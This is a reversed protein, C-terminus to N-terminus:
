KGCVKRRKTTFVLCVTSVAMIGFWFIMNSDNGTKPNDPEKPIRENAIEITIVEGNENISIEFVEDTRIYGNPASIEKIEYEGYPIDSFLAIGNEDTMQEAILNGDLDYLGFIAGALPLGTKADTKIIRIDGRILLNDITMETLEDTAISVTQENSLIYGTTLDSAIEKVTYEGIPLGEIFIEGNEDTFFEGYFEVGAIGTGTVTFKVGKIPTEKGEFTKIIKLDGRLLENLIETDTQGDATVTVTIEPALDYGATWESELERITYDGVPLGEIFIVGDTDTYFVEDFVLGATSTGFVQFPVNAIPNNGEFSKVIKLNGRQLKNDIELTKLRNTRIVATQTASLWFGETLEIDLETVTYHGIPLGTISIEGNEDTYHIESYEMGAISTGEVKFPVGEIPIDRSEFTKVIKLDGRKLINHIEMEAIKEHAIFTTQPKSLFYGATLESNIEQVRYFGIPLGEIFIEGNENTVFEGKFPIGTISIGTVTFPVGEIPYDKGEFTKIIRLDGRKLKNEIAMETLEETAIVATQEDSLIYGITLRSDLEKVTYNGIPLGEIFIKGNKDTYHIQSYEMGAISTGEITFPVGKIPYVREEFTKIIKLDGRMLINNITIETIEKHAVGVTEEESLYYGATLESELEKVTYNGVLLNELTIEGNEDTKANITVTTGVATEGTITFPVDAIPYVKGEFTKIVKLSGRMLENYIAEGNNVKIDVVVGGGKNYDFTIEYETDILVYGVATNVEKIIYNGFPLDTKIIGNGDKDVGFVELLAGAPIVVMGDIAKIDNKAYVGFLVEAYPNFDDAANEPMEMVKDLTVSAKQRQNYIAVRKELYDGMYIADLGLMVPIPKGDSVFGYPITKEVLEYRGFRLMKSTAKGNADTTITDVVTGKAIVLRGYVDYIDESAVIDFVAGPLGRVEYVPIYVGSSEVSGVLMEGTKEIFIQGFKLENPLAIGGNNVSVKSTVTDQGAYAATIPYKTNNLQYFQNTQLEQVYYKAFPLEGFVIGKGNNDVQILAILTGKAIVVSGDVGRIDEDSYLGFVVDKFANFGEPANVPKEMLKQLEIEVNQRVNTIGIQTSVVAIEQGEYVLHAPYPTKNLVFGEAAKTEIVTYSGLYLQKTEAYGNANTTITDVVTGKAYRLTGDHTYIDEAAVVNFVAGRLGTLSFIPTNQEGFETSTKVSGTLMNGQKEIKIIGKQPNNAMRVEHVFPDIQTSHITFKVPTRNIVYGYPANVEHLEYDGSKLTEPMVLTGDPATEFVDITTPVPYNFSQSVWQGTSLDNVKFSTGAAPITKGTESDVKIIKVLSRFHPDNLIYRYIRGEQSIFVDFLDVLRMDGPASVEKVTYVGYPLLKTIAYGNENTTLIDREIPLANNYSGAKKLHIEFIAGELPAEVQNNPPDVNPDPDDTHKTIAIQGEIVKNSLNGYKKSVEVNQGQYDITIPYSGTDLTYGVPPVKEKYYYNGLPLEKTTASSTNGCYITDVLQNNRYIFTGNLQRIDQAAYVEFVAGNLTSDGQARTGFTKDLKTITIIGVQPNEPVAVDTYTITVTQGAYTLVPRYTTTNLIYGYPATRENVNYAGLPLEKTQAYGSANTTIIDVLSGSSNRVDFVAGALSYDGMSPIANHKHIRIIGTQPREPVGVATYVVTVEQGGYSLTANHTDLNLVYGYPAVTELITYNGLILDKSQAKGAADTTLTDILAGNKDRIEFKAGALSYDGMNPITNSKQLNIRGVQPYEPVTVDTYAVPVSQGAYTLVAPFSATNRVYGYPATKETITYAGLPLEKTNADGNKDTTITDVLTGGANRIEFVAGSLDYNGMSPNANTKHVRIIGPQPPESVTVSSFTRLEEQGAYTLTVPFNNTNLLYGNPATRERVTYTGLKLDKSQAKGAADTTITDVVTTGSLIDFVAGALSYNGMAPNGNIKEINIRGVQPTEAITVDPAYVVDANGHAGSIPATHTNKDVVFGYPAITEKVSYVGLPLIKTQARGNSGTTITDVLTGGADRVEFVAGALSYGGMTPNADTKRVTIVGRKKINDFSVSATQGAIVTVNKPNPTPEVFDSSLNIEKVSYVGPVLNPIDIKGTSTSVYTGILTNSSNRVEFQFGAVAGANHQTTKIIALSGNNVRVRVFGNIPDTIEQGVTVLGQVSGKYQIVNNCWFTIASRKAGTKSAQIDVTGTPPNNMSITLNSGSRSFSVGTTTSSFTYDALVGNTDTLVVSYNTGNWALDNTIAATLSKRLFSPIKGHNIVSTVIRNYNSFISTRLPHDSRISDTVKDLSSAPTAYNFDPDREGVIVEWVLLQTAILEAMVTNNLSTSVTGTYGYQFIRGLLAQIEDAVLIGNNYSSLFNAPLIEPATDGTSLDVGPQVCYAVASNSRVGYVCYFNSAKLNWGNKFNLASTGWTNTGGGRPYLITDIVITNAASVNMTSPLIFVSLLIILSLVMAATRKILSKM